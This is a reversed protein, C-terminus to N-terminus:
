FVRDPAATARLSTFECLFLGPTPESEDSEKELSADPNRVMARYPNGPQM